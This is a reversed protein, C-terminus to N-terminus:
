KLIPELAHRAKNIVNATTGISQTTDEAHHVADSIRDFLTKEKVPEQPPKSTFTSLTSKAADAAQTVKKEVSKVVETASEKAQQLTKSTKESVSKVTSKASQVADSIHDVISTSTKNKIQATQTVPEVAHPTEKKESNGSCGIALLAIGIFILKKRIM